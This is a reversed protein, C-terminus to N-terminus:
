YTSTHILGFITLNSGNSRSRKLIQVRTSNSVKGIIVGVYTFRCMQYRLRPPSMNYQVEKTAFHRQFDEWMISAVGRLCSVVTLSPNTRLMVQVSLCIIYSYFPSGFCLCLFVFAFLFLHHLIHM